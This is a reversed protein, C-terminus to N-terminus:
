QTINLLSMTYNTGNGAVISVTLNDNAFLITPTTNIAIHQYGSPLTFFQLLQGNRYLGATVAAQVANSCTISVAKLTDQAVMFYSATGAIPAYFNGLVNFTKIVNGGTGGSGVSGGSSYINGGVYLNGQIGVGGAVTLAGTLTNTASTTALINVTLATLTNVVGTTRSWANKSLSYQYTGGNVLALQGDLPNSPFSM